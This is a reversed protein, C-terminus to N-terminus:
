QPKGSELPNLIKFNAPDAFAPTSGRGRPNGSRDQEKSLWANVFRPIGKATKRNGANDLLWRRMERLEQPVNVGPYTKAYDDVDAQFVPYEVQARNTPLSVAIPGRAQAACAAAIARGLTALDPKVDKEKGGDEEGDEMQPPEEGEVDGQNEGSPSSTDSLGIYLSFEAPFPHVYHPKKPRQYKRFNRILGFERGAEDRFRKIFNAAELEALIATMDIHDAPMLRAKITLPKWQFVGHDDAETWIGPLVCRAAMSLGMFDEDTFIGPHISRIRAM